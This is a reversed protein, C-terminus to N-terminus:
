DKQDFEHVNKVKIVKVFWGLGLTVFSKVPGNFFIIHSFQQQGSYISNIVASRKAFM